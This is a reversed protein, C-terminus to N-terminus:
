SACCSISWLRWSPRVSPIILRPFYVKSILNANGVLGGGGRTLAQSFYTWPLLAAFAFLPYPLGDSPMRALYSFIVTFVMMTLLPQLVVWAVGIATQKYRVKVDRWVLFYLLERYEWVAKLDLDFLGRTPEIVVTPARM